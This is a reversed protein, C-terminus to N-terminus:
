TIGAYTLSASVLGGRRTRHFKVKCKVSSPCRAPEGFLVQWAPPLGGRQEWFAHGWLAATADDCAFSFPSLKPLGGSVLLDKLTIEQVSCVEKLISILTKFQHKLFRM